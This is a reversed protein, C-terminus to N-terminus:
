VTVGQARMDFSTKTAATGAALTLRLWIGQANAANPAAGNVLNQPSPVNITQPAAGSSWSGIGTPATDLRNATTATDNLATTLAFDLTGASPDTQKIISALTLATSANWNVAFIKEYYARSSGGVVDASANYFLRRNETVQIPLIDFLMGRHVSYTTASTPVTGWDRNVYAIDGSLEIIRRLQFNVGAPSNNVIRIIQGISCSAGHGSALTISASASATAAAGSQATQAATGVTTNSIVAVDGTAATGSTLGKLLREFSQTGAVPTTGTLTKAETQIIGAGDRGHTTIIVGTDGAVSSVYNVTGTAALDSFFVRKASNIAGGTTAGNADPMNASGVFVLDSPIVSM